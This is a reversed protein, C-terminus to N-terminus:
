GRRRGLRAGFVTVAGAAGRGIRVVFERAVEGTTPEHGLRMALHLRNVLMMRGLLRVREARTGAARYRAQWEELRTQEPRSWYRWLAFQPDDELGTMTGLGAAFAVEAGLRDALSAADARVQADALEWAPPPGTVEHSRAHHLVLMLLQGPLDPVPCPAHALQQVTHRAWLEEFAEGPPVTLGPWHRHVDVLSWYRHQYNAAHEFASGEEFTSYLSWGHRGLEELLAPVAAPDVLVDVDQSYRPGRRLDASVAPGKVHLVRSGVRDALDQVVAHTLHVRAWM